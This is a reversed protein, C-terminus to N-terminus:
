IGYTLYAEVTAYPLNTNVTITRSTIQSANINAIRVCTVGDYVVTVNGMTTTAHSTAPRKPKPLKRAVLPAFLSALFQLRTM